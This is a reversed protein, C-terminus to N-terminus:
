EAGIIKYFPIELAKSIKYIAGVTVNQKGNELSSIYARDLHSKEALDGQSLSAAKRYDKINNGIISLLIELPPTKEAEGILSSLDKLLKIPDTSIYDVGLQELEKKKESVSMGGVVIKVSPTQSKIASILEKLEEFVNLYTFSIVLVAPPKQNISKILEGTALGNGFFDVQWGDNYLLDAIIRAGLIHKDEDLTGVLARAGIARKPKMFSRVVALQEFTIQAAISEKLSDIKGLHSLEGIHIQCPTIVKTYLDGTSIAGSQLATQITVSAAHRDASLIAQVYSTRIQQLLTTNSVDLM